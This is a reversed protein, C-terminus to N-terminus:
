GLSQSLRHWATNELRDTVRRGLEGDIERLDNLRYEIADTPGEARVDVMRKKEKTTLGLEGVIEGGVMSGIKRGDEAVAVLEGSVVILFRAENRADEGRRFVADGAGYRRPRGLWFLKAADALELDGFVSRELAARASEFDV